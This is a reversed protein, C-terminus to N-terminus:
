KKLTSERVYEEGNWIYSQNPSLLDDPKIEGAILKESQERTKERERLASQATNKVDDNLDNAWQEVVAWSKRTDTKALAEIALVRLEPEAIQSLFETWEVLIPDFWEMDGLHRLFSEREQPKDLWFQRVKERTKETNTRLLANMLSYIGPIRREDKQSIEYSELLFDEFFPNPHNSLNHLLTRRNQDNNLVFYQICDWAYPNPIQVLLEIKQIMDDTSFLFTNIVKKYDIEPEGIRSEIYRRADYNFRSPKQYSFYQLIMEDLDPNHFEQYNFPPQYRNKSLNDIFDRFLRQSQKGPYNAILYIMRENGKAYEYVIRNFNQPLHFQKIAYELPLQRAARGDRGYYCLDDGNMGDIRNSTSRFGIVRDYQREFYRPVRPTLYNIAYSELSPIFFGGRNEARDMIEDVARQCEMETMSDSLNFEASVIADIVPQIRKDTKAKGVLLYFLQSEYNRVHDIWEKTPQYNLQRLAFLVHHFHEDQSFVIADPMFYNTITRNDASMGYGSIRAFVGALCGDKRFQMWYNSKKIQEWTETPSHNTSSPMMWQYNRLTIPDRPAYSMRMAPLSSDPIISTTEPIPIGSEIREQRPPENWQPVKALFDDRSIQLPTKGLYVDNCYVDLQTVPFGDSIEIAISPLPKKSDLSFFM